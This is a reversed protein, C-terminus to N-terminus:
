EKKYFFDDKFYKTLLDKSIKDVACMKEITAEQFGKNLYFCGLVFFDAVKPIVSLTQYLAVPNDLVFESEMYELIIQQTIRLGYVTESLPFGREVGGKGMRVFYDGLISRDIGHELFRGLQPYVSGNIALLEAETLTNHFKLHQSSKIQELWREALAKSKFNLTDILIRDIVSGTDCLLLDNDIM